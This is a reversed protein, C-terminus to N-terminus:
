VGFGPKKLHRRQSPRKSIRSDGWEPFRQADRSRFEVEPLNGLKASERNRPKAPEHSRTKV